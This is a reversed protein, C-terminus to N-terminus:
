RRSQISDPMRSECVEGFQGVLDFRRKMAAAAAPSNMAMIADASQQYAEPTVEGMTAEAYADAFVIVHPASTVNENTTVASIGKARSNAADSKARMAIWGDVVDDDDAQDGPGDEAERAAEFLRTWHLLALQDESLDNPTRGFVPGGAGERSVWVGRWPDTRALERLQATSPRASLYALVAADLLESRDTMAREPTRWVRRGAATTLGAAVLARLRAAAVVGEVTQHYLLGRAATLEAIRAECARLNRRVPERDTPRTRREFVAARLDEADRRAKELAAEQADSWLRRDRLLAVAEEASPLGRSRARSAIESALEAAILRAPADPEIIFHPRPRGGDRPLRVRTRGALLRSAYM